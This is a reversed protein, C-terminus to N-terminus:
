QKPLECVKKITFKILKCYQIKRSVIRNIVRFICDQKLGIGITDGSGMLGSFGGMRSPSPSSRQPKHCSSYMLSCLPSTLFMDYKHFM